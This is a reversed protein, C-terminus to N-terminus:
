GPGGTARSDRGKNFISIDFDNGRARDKVVVIEIGFHFEIIGKIM